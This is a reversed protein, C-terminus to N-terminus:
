KEILRNLWLYLANLIGSNLLTTSPTIYEFHDPEHTTDTGNFLSNKNNGNEAKQNVVFLGRNNLYVELKKRSMPNYGISGPYLPNFDSEYKVLFPSVPAYRRFLDDWFLYWAFRLPHPNVLPPSVTNKNKNTEPKRFGIAKIKSAKPHRKNTQYNIQKHDFIENIQPINIKYKISYNNILSPNNINGTYDTLPKLTDSIVINKLGLLDTLAEPDFPTVSPDRPHFYPRIADLREYLARLDDYHDNILNKLSQSKEFLKLIYVLEHYTPLSDLLPLSNEPTPKALHSYDPNCVSQYNYRLDNFLSDGNEFNNDKLSADTSIDTFPGIHSSEKFCAFMSAAIYWPISESSLVDDQDIELIDENGKQIKHDVYRSLNKRKKLKSKALNSLSSSLVPSKITIGKTAPALQPHPSFIFNTFFYSLGYQKDSFEYEFQSRWLSFGDQIKKFNKLIIEENEKLLFYTSLSMTFDSNIGLIKSQIKSLIQYRNNGIDWLNTSLLDIDERKIKPNYRMYNNAGNNPVMESVVSAAEAISGTKNTPINYASSNENHAHPTTNPINSNLGQLSTNNNLEGKESEFNSNRIIQNKFLNFTINDKYDFGSEADEKYGLNLGSLIQDKYSNMSEMSVIEGRHNIVMKTSDIVDIKVMFGASTNVLNFIPNVRINKTNEYHHRIIILKAKFIIIKKFSSDIGDISNDLLSIEQSGEPVSNTNEGLISQSNKLDNEDFSFTIIENELSRLSLRLRKRDIVEPNRNQQLYIYWGSFSGIRIVYGPAEDYIFYLIFPFPTVYAKGFWSQIKFKTEGFDNYDVIRIGSKNFSQNTHNSKPRYNSSIDMTAISQDIPIGLLNQIELDNSPSLFDQNISNYVEKYDKFNSLDPFYNKLLTQPPKFYMDPGCFSSIIANQIDRCESPTHIIRDLGFKLYDGYLQNDNDNNAQYSNYSQNAEQQNYNQYGEAQYYNQTPQPFSINESQDPVNNKNYPNINKTTIPTILKDINDLLLREVTSNFYDMYGTCNLILLNELHREPIYGKYGVNYPTRINVNSNGTNTHSSELMENPLKTNASNEGYVVQTNLSNALVLNLEKLVDQDSNFHHNNHKYGSVTFQYPYVDLREYGASNGEISNISVHHPAILPPLRNDRSALLIASWTDQWIREVALRHLNLDDVSNSTLIGPSFEIVQFSDKLFKKSISFSSSDGIFPGYTLLKAMYSNRDFVIPNNSDASNNINSRFNNKNLENNDSSSLESDISNSDITPSPVYYFKQYCSNAFILLMFLISSFFIVCIIIFLLSFFSSQDSNVPDRSDFYSSGNKVLIWAIFSLFSLVLLTFNSILGSFNASADFYPRKKCFSHFFLYTVLIILLQRFIDISEVKVRLIVGSLYDTIHLSPKSWCNLSSFIACILVLAFKYSMTNVFEGLYDPYVNEYLFSFESEDNYLLKEHLQVAAVQKIKNYLEDDLHEAKIKKYQSIPNFHGLKQLKSKLTDHHKQYDANEKNLEDLLLLGIPTSSLSAFPSNIFVSNVKPISKIIINKVSRPFYIGLSFICLLSIFFLIFTYNFGNTAGSNISDNSIFFNTKYCVKYTITDTTFLAKYINVNWFKIQWTILEFCLKLTPLYLVYMVFFAFKRRSIKDPLSEGSLFSYFSTLFRKIFNLSKAAYFRNSFPSSFVNMFPMNSQFTIVNLNENPGEFKNSEFKEDFEGLFIKKASGSDYTKASRISKKNFQTPLESAVNSQLIDNIQQKVEKFLEKEFEPSNFLNEVNKSWGSGDSSFINAKLKSDALNDLESKVTSNYIKHSSNESTNSFFYVFSNRFSKQFDRSDSKLIIWYFIMLITVFSFSILFYPGYELNYSILDPIMFGFIHIPYLFLQFWINSNGFPKPSDLNSPFKFLSSDDISSKFYHIGIPGVILALIQFFDILNLSHIFVRDIGPGSHIKNKKPIGKSKENNHYFALTKVVLEKINKTKNKLMPLVSFPSALTLSKAFNWSTGAGGLSVQPSHLIIEVALNSIHSFPPFMTFKKSFTSQDDVTVSNESNQIDSGANDSALDFSALNRQRVNKTQKKDPKNSIGAKTQNIIDISYSKSMEIGPTKYVEPDLVIEPARKFKKLKSFSAHGLNDLIRDLKKFEMRNSNPLIYEPDIDLIKATKTSALLGADTKNVGSLMSFSRIKEKKPGSYFLNNFDIFLIKKSLSNSSYYWSGIPLPSIRFIGKIPNEKSKIKNIIYIAFILAGGILLKGLNLWFGSGSEKSDKKPPSSSNNNDSPANNQQNNSSGAGENNENKKSNLLSGAGLMGLAAALPGLSTYKTSAANLLHQGNDVNFIKGFFGNGGSPKSSAQPVSETNASDVKTINPIESIVSPAYNPKNFNNPNYSSTHEPFVSNLKNLNHPNISSIKFPNLNEQQIYNNPDPYDMRFNPDIMAFINQHPKNESNPENNDPSIYKSFSPMQIRNYVNQTPHTNSNHSQNQNISGLSHSPLTAPFAYINQHSNINGANQNSTPIFENKVNLNNSDKLKNSSHLSFNSASLKHSNNPNNANNNFDHIQTPINSNATEPNNNRYPSGLKQHPPIILTDINVKAIDSFRKQLKGMEEETMSSNLSSSTFNNKTGAQIQHTAPSFKPLKQKSPDQSINNATQNLALLKNVPKQSNQTGGGLITQRSNSVSNMNYLLNNNQSDYNNNFDGAEGSKKSLFLNQMPINDKIDSQPMSNENLLGILAKGWISEDQHRAKSYSNMDAGISQVLIDNDQNSERSLRVSNLEGEVRGYNRSDKRVRHYPKTSNKNLKPDKGNKKTSNFFDSDFFSTNDYTASIATRPSIPVVKKRRQQNDKSQIPDLTSGQLPQTHQVSIKDNRSNLLNSQNVIEAPNSKSRERSGNIKNSSINSRNPNSLVVNNPSAKFPRSNFSNPVPPVSFRNSNAFQHQANSNYLNNPSPYSVSDIFESNKEGIPLNSLNVPINNFNNPPPNQNSGNINNGSNIPPSFHNQSLHTNPINPLRSFDAPKTNYSPYSERKNKPSKISSGTQISSLLEIHDKNVISKDLQSSKTAIPHYRPLNKLNDIPKILPSTNKELSDDDNSTSATKLATSYRLSSPTKPQNTYKSINLNVSPLPKQDTNTSPTLDPPQIPKSNPIAPLAAYKPEQKSETNQIQNPSHPYKQLITQDNKNQDDYLYRQKSKDTDQNSYSHIQSHDLSTEPKTKIPSEFNKSNIQFDKETPPNYNNKPLPSPPLSDTKNPPRKYSVVPELKLINDNNPLAYANEINNNINSPPQFQDLTVINKGQDFTPNIKTKPVFKNTKPVKSFDEYYPLPEFMLSPKKRSELFAKPSNSLKSLGFGQFKSDLNPINMLRRLRKFKNLVSKISPRKNSKFAPRTKPFYPSMFQPSNPNKVLEPFFHNSPFSYVRKNKNESNRNGRPKAKRSKALRISKITKPLPQNWWNGTSDISFNESIKSNSYNSSNRRKPLNSFNSSNKPNPLNSHYIIKDPNFNRSPKNSTYNSDFKNFFSKRKPQNFYPYALIKSDKSNNQKLNNFVDDIDFGSDISYRSNARNINKPKASGPNFNLDNLNYSYLSNSSVTSRQNISAKSNKKDNYVPSSLSSSSNEPIKSNSTNSSNSTSTSLSLPKKKKSDESNSRSGFDYISSQNFSSDNNSPAQYSNSDNSDISTPDQSSNSPGDYNLNAFNDNYFQNNKQFNLSVNQSTSIDQPRDLAGEYSYSIIPSNGLNLINERVSKDNYLKENETSMALLEKQARRILRYRWIQRTKSSSEWDSVPSQSPDFGNASSSNTIYKLMNTTNAMVPANFGLPPRQFLSGKSWKKLESIPTIGLDMYPSNLVDAQKKDSMDVNNDTPKPILNFNNQHVGSNIDSTKLNNRSPHESYDNSDKLIKQSQIKPVGTIPISTHNHTTYVDKSNGNKSLVSSLKGNSSPRLGDKYNEAHMAISYNQPDKTDANSKSSSAQSNSSIKSGAHSSLAKSVKNKEALSSEVWMEINDPYKPAPSNILYNQNRILPTNPNVPSNIFPSTDALVRSISDTTETEAISKLISIPKQPSLIQHTDRPDVSTDNRPADKTNKSIIENPIKSKSTHISHNTPNIVNMFLSQDQGLNTSLIKNDQSQSSNAFNNISDLYSQDHVETTNLNQFSNKDIKIDNKNSHDQIAPTEHINESSPVIESKNSAKDSNNSISRNQTKNNTPTIQEIPKTSQLKSSSTSSTFSASPTLKQIQPKSSSLESKSLNSEIIDRTKSVVQTKIFKQSKRQGRKLIESEIKKQLQDAVNKEWNESTSKVNISIPPIKAKSPSIVINSSVIASQSDSIISSSKDKLSNSSTIPKSESQSVKLDASKFELSPAPSEINSKLSSHKSSKNSNKIKLMSLDQQINFNKDNFSEIKSVKSSPYSMRSSKKSGKKRSKSSAISSTTSNINSKQIEIQKLFIKQSSLRSVADSNKSESNANSFPSVNQSAPIYNKSNSSLPHSHNSKPTIEKPYSEPAHAIQIPTKPNDIQNPDLTLDRQLEIKNSAFSVSQSNKSESLHSQSKSIKPHNSDNQHKKLSSNYSKPSIDISIQSAKQSPHSDSNLPHSPHKKSNQSINSSSPLRSLSSKFSDSSSESSSNNPPHLPYTGSIILPNIKQNSFLNSQQNLAHDIVPINPVDNSPPTPIRPSLYSQTNSQPNIEPNELKSHPDDKNEPVISNNQLPLPLKPLPRNPISHIPTKGILNDKNDPIDNNRLPLLHSMNNNNFNSQTHSSSADSLRKRVPASPLPKFYKSNIVNSPNSKSKSHSFPHNLTSKKSDSHVLNSNKSIIDNLNNIQNQYKLNNRNDSASSSSHSKTSTATPLASSNIKQHTDASKTNNFLTHQKSTNDHPINSTSSINLLQNFNSDNPNPFSIQPINPNNSNPSPISFSSSSNFYNNNVKFIGLEALQDTSATHQTNLNSNFSKNSSNYTMSAKDSNADPGPIKSVHNGLLYNMYESQESNEQKNMLINHNNQFNNNLFQHQLLQQQQQQIIRQQQDNQFQIRQQTQQQSQQRLQQQNQPPYSTIQNIPDIPYAPYLPANYKKQNLPINTTTSPKPIGQNTNEKNNSANSSGSSESRSGPM